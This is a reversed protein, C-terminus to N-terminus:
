FLSKLMVGVIVHLYWINSYESRVITAIILYENENNVYNTWPQRVDASLLDVLRPFIM